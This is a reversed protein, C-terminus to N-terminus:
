HYLWINILNSTMFKDDIDISKNSQSLVSYIKNDTYHTIKSQDEYYHLIENFNKLTETISEKTEQVSYNWIKHEM